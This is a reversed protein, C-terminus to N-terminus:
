LVLCRKGRWVYIGFLLTMGGLAAAYVEIGLVGVGFVSPLIVVAADLVTHLAVAAAWYRLAKGAKVGYMLLLSAGVHFMMAFIREAGATLVSGADAPFLAGQGALVMMLGAIMNPGILLMAEVGGHGLGFALGHEMDQQRKLLFSMAAWRASEEFLGATFGLFLGYEWPLLQLVAYWGFGPLVLQLIPIRILPQSVTFALAGILFAKGAGKVKRWLLVLGAVPILYCIAIGVALSLVLM